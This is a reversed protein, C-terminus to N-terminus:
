APPPMNCGVVIDVTKIVGGKLSTCDMGYFTIQNTAPDYDWGNMHSADRSVGKPNKDFFVFIQNPDSPVSQLKYTCSLTKSAITGLVNDLSMQDAADYYHTMPDGSPVGGADAFLNMQAADVGSGFGIVFTAIKQAYLDQIIKLTGADGNALTCGAQKGDTLLLAYSDRTMDMFAPEGQAQQMATDINTVCPGDPYYKDAVKLSALLLTQIAMENGAGVPIPIKDQACNPTVIDPFLTLGFRIKTAYDTTLKNLAAVAIQWKNMNGSVVDTMSCSRDLVVLLNPPIPDAIIEQGSCGGGPVCTNSPIDCITGGGCDADGVCKGPDLCTGASSCFQPAVCAPTCTAIVNGGAGHSGSGGSAGGANSSSSTENNTGSCAAIIGGLFVCGLGISTLRM